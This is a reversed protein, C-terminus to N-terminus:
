NGVIVQYNAKALNLQIQHLQKNIKAEFFNNLETIYESSRIVGNALQSSAAKLVEERIKIISDDKLLLNQFKEIDSYAESEQIRNNLLFNEREAAILEKNYDIVRKKKKNQGWDFVNWNLKVGVIYFDQFSNDLMNLGPNGYGAQAFGSLKPVIEKSIVERSAELQNEQFEFLTLEPRRNEESKFTIFDPNELVLNDQFEIHLLKSLQKLAKIRDAQIQAQDQELKLLEAELIRESSELVAGYKVGSKVEKLREEIQDKKLSLLQEQEQKLLINFYYQNVRYKLEYLNVEVQQQNTQLEAQKLKKQAKINNGNYILQVADLTARYQDKNPYDISMTPLDGPFRIIESQYSAQVNLDLTPLKSSEIIFIEEKAREELWQKKVKLPNNEIALIYSDELTLRQQASLLIPFLFFLVQISREM